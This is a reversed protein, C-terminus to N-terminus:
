RGDFSVNTMAGFLDKATLEDPRGGAEIFAHLGRMMAMTADYAFPTFVGISQNNVDFGLCRGNALGHERWIYYGAAPPM